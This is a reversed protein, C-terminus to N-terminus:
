VTPGCLGYACAQIRLARRGPALQQGHDAAGFGDAGVTFLALDVLLVLYARVDTLLQRDGSGGGGGGGGERDNVPYPRVACTLWYM